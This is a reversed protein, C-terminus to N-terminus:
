IMAGSRKMGLTKGRRSTSLKSVPLGTSHSTIRCASVSARLAARDSGIVAM